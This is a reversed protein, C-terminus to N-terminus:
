GTPAAVGSPAQSVRLRWATTAWRPPVAIMGMPLGIRLFPRARFSSPGAALALFSMRRAARWKPPAMRLHRVPQSAWFRASALITKRMLKPSRGM